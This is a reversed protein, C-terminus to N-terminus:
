KEEGISQKVKLLSVLHQRIDSMSLVAVILLPLLIGVSIILSPVPGNSNLFTIVALLVFLSSLLFPVVMKELEIDCDKRLLKQGALNAAAEGATAIAILIVPGAGNSAAIWAIPLTLIRLLNAKMQIKTKGLAVAPVSYSTKCVLIAQWIAFLFVLPALAAYKEGLLFCVVPDGFLLAGYILLLGAALSAQMVGRALHAFRAPDDRAESLRPVFFMALSGGVISMPTMTLTLGMSFIALIELGLERAVIIRDGQMLLFLLANNALLPWGFRFAHMIVTRDFTLGYPRKALLHSVVVGFGHQLLLSYLMVKYDDFAVALPWVAALALVMPVAKQLLAPGYTRHRTLRHIDFHEFGRAMPVLALVEYAWALDPVGLFRAIPDALLFLVAGALLGRLLHFAQLGKQFNPTDGEQAQVILQQLGIASTMEVLSMSLAFTVAIGYDEVSLLRAIVLNRAFGLLSAFANGSLLLLVSRLM